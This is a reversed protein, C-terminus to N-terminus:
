DKDLMQSYPLCWLLEVRTSELRAQLSYVSTYTLLFSVVVISIIVKGVIVNSMVSLIPLIVQLSM